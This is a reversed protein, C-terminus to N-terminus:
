VVGCCVISTRATWLAFLREPTTAILREMRLTILEKTKTTTSM